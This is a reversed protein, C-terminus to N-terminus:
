AENRRRELLEAFRAFDVSIFLGEAEACLVDGHLLEGTTFLKRGEVRDLRGVLRLDHHLPTPARYRISLRGTMGPNGSLSQAMGLLEDFLAAVWGGHVHGPPGEYAAGFRVSGEIRDDHAVLQMPPAMPNARGIIPSFDFFSHPNGANASESWGEYLRGQAHGELLAAAEELRDAVASLVEDPATTAVVRDTVHRAAGALRHLTARRSTPLEDQMRRLYHVIGPGPARLDEGGHQQEDTM